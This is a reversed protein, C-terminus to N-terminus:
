SDVELGPWAERMRKRAYFMRTKVTNVSVGTLRAIEKYSYGHHCTLEVVVRQEASLSELVSELVMILERRAHEDVQTPDELNDVVEPALQGPSRSIRSLAKMAKNYAIGLIWTSPKSRGEFTAARQWVVIMVDNLIEGAMEEGRLHHRLYLYLRPYYRHYLTEFAERDKRAILRILAADTEAVPGYETEGPRQPVASGGVVRLGRRERIEVM